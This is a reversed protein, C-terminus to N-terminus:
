RESFNIGSTEKLEEILDDKKKQYWIMEQAELKKKSV